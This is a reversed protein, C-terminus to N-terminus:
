ANPRPYSTRTQQVPTTQDQKSVDRSTWVMGLADLEAKREPDLEGCLQSRRQVTFWQGLKYGSDTVYRSPIMLHGHQAHYARAEELGRQWSEDLPNWVMGLEDLEAKREPALRGVCLDNRVSHIRAGLKMGSPDVYARHVKLHGHVAYFARAACIFNQWKEGQPDWVMGLTNLEAKTEATLLGAKELMRYRVLLVSLKAGSNGICSKPVNLHGHETHFARLDDLRRQQIEDHPAWTMGLADLEAKRVPALRGVKLDKRRLTIWHWLKFGSPSTYAYPVRLHGHYAHFSRCEELGLQWKRDFSTWWPMGLADLMAEREKDLKGKLQLNCIRALSEGLRLGSPSIYGRPIRLHGNQSHFGRAEEYVRQWMADLPSWVMGLADLEAKHEPTLEGARERKRCRVIFGGLAFESSSIYLAHVSLHGNQAHFARAEELGREWGSVSEMVVRARISTRLAEIDIAESGPLLIEVREDFAETDVSGGDGVPLAKRVADGLFEDVERMAKLTAVVDAFGARQAADQLSEGQRPSVLLPVFIYGTGKGPAPRMARGAAQAIDVRSKKPDIFAVMDVTPIDVGETLCKANSILSRGATAFRRMADQREPAKMTGNIHLLEFGPLEAALSAGQDDPSVFQQAEVVRSHFSIIRKLDHAHVAQALAMHNALDTASHVRGAHMVQARALAQADLRTSDVVSIIIKYPVIIKRDVAEKFSLTYARPGYMSEDDMSVVPFDGDKDKDEYHRPTATFFLRKAVPINADYLSYAFRNNEGATKHAEDAVAFDFKGLPKLGRIAEGIVPASQYTCFIVSVQDNGGDLRAKLFDRVITPDTVVPFELEDAVLEDQDTGNLGDTIRPDSCVCMTRLRDGWDSNAKWTLLMQRLLALSPVLVVGVHGGQRSRSDHVIDQACWLSVLSKGTGCAMAVHARDASALTRRVAKRADNQHPRPKVPRSM